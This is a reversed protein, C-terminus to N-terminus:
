KFNEPFIGNLAHQAFGAFDPYITSYRYGFMNALRVRIEAKASQSIRFTYIPNKPDRGRGPNIVHPRAAVSTANRIEQIKWFGSKANVSKPYQVGTPVGGLLFGGNQASIRSDLGSPKWAYAEAKWRKSTKSDLCNWPIESCDEWKNMSERTNIIRNKVDIAFLRGDEAMGAPDDQVAFFVGVWANFSIDILRTPAGFHQLMALQNLASLRGRGNLNHLGWKHLESLVRREYANMAEETVVMEPQHQRLKRYLSSELSWNANAHGRWGFEIGYSSEGLDPRQKQDSLYSIASLLQDFDEIKQEFSVWYAETNMVLRLPYTLQFTGRGSRHSTNRSRYM